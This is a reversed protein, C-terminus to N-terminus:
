TKDTESSLLRRIHLVKGTENMVIAVHDPVTGPMFYPNLIHKNFLNIFELPSLGDTLNQLISVNQLSSGSEMQTM